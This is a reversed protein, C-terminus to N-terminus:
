VALKATHEYPLIHMCACGGKSPHAPPTPFHVPPHTHAHISVLAPSADSTPTAPTGGEPTGRPVEPQICLPPPHATLNLDSDQNRSSDTLLNRIRSGNGGRMHQTLKSKKDGECMHPGQVLSPFRLSPRAWFVLRYRLELFQRSPFVPASARTALTDLNNTQQRAGAPVCLSAGYM